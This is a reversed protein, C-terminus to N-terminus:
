CDRVKANEGLSTAYFTNPSGGIRGEQMSDIDIERSFNPFNETAAIAVM